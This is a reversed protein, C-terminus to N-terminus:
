AAQRNWQPECHLRGRNFVTDKSYSVPTQQRKDTLSDFDLGAITSIDRGQRGGWWSWIKPEFSPRICRRFIRGQSTGPTPYRILRRETGISAMEFHITPQDM